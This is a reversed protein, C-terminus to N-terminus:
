APFMNAIAPLWHSGQRIMIGRCVKEIHEFTFHGVIVCGVSQIRSQYEVGIMFQVSRGESSTYRSAGESIYIGRDGRADARERARQMASGVFLHHAHEHTNALNTMGFGINAIGDLVFLSDHAKPVAYVFRFVRAGGM